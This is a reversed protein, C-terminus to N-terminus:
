EPPASLEALRARVAKTVTNRAGRPNEAEFAAIQNLTDPNTSASVLAVVDDVKTSFQLARKAEDTVAPPLDSGKEERKDEVVRPGWTLPDPSHKWAAADLAKDQELSTVLCPDVGPTTSYRWSPYAVHSPRAVPAEGPAVVVADPQVPPVFKPDFKDPTDVWGPETPNADGEKFLKGTRGTLEPHYLFRAHM